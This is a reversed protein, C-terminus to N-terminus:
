WRSITLDDLYVTNSGSHNGDVQFNTLLTPSWGLSFDSPVTINLPSELGDLWVSHYTVNGSGDRSYSIQVHHWMNPTWQSANCYANSHIWQDNPQQPTGANKTYDWTQSGGDCQFGYIITQGNSLVQNMDMELNLINSASSTMYVWGDYFFNQPNPDNGWAVYYIEGGYNSFSTNFQRANGTLSPNSVIQMSGSSSSGTAPDHNMQWSGTNQINSVSVANQPVITTSASNSNTAVVNVQTYCSAGSVGWSKVYLTHQGATTAAQSNLQTTGNLSVTTSGTDLSFGIASVAQGACTTASAQINFPSGVYAGNAPSTVTIGSNEPGVQQAAAISSSSSGCCIATALAALLAVSIPSKKFLKLQFGKAFDREENWAAQPQLARL